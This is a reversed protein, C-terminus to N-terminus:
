WVPFQYYYHIYEDESKRSVEGEGEGDEEADDKRGEQVEEKEEEKAM